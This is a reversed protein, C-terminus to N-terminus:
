RIEELRKLLNKVTSTQSFPKATELANQSLRSYDTPSLNLARWIGDCVSDVEAQVVLGNGGDSVLYELNETQTSIVPKGCAFAEVWTRGFTEGSYYSPFICMYSSRYYHVIEEMAIVGVFYVRHLGLEQAMKKWGGLAPGEGAFVFNAVEAGNQNRLQALARLVLGAGKEEVARACSFLTPLNNDLFPFDGRDVTEDFLSDPVPRGLMRIRDVIEPCVGPLKAATSQAVFLLDLWRYGRRVLSANVKGRFSRNDRTLTSGSNISVYRLGNKEVFPLVGLARVMGEDLLLVFDPRLAKAKQLIVRAIAFHELVSKPRISHDYRWINKQPKVVATDGAFVHLDISAGASALGEVLLRNSM